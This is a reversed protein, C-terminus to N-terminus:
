YSALIKTAIHILVKHSWFMSNILCLAWFSGMEVRLDVGRESDSSVRFNMLIRLLTWCGGLEGFAGSPFGSGVLISDLTVSPVVFKHFNDLFLRDLSCRLM